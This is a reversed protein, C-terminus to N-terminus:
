KSVLWKHNYAKYVMMMLERVLRVWTEMNIHLDGCVCFYFYFIFRKTVFQNTFKM